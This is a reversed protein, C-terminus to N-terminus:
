LGRWQWRYIIGNSNAWFMRYAVYGTTEPPFYATYSTASGWVHNAFATANATTYTSAYGPSSFTRVATWVLIRGGAGDDFVQQPPGWTTILESFHHGQWSAMVQNIRAACGASLLLILALFAARKTM